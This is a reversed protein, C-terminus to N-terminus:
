KGFAARIAANAEERGTAAAPTGTASAVIRPPKTDAAFAGPDNERYSKVFDDFGLLSDGQLPLNKAALDAMFAKKASASTFHLGAAANQAAYGAQLEAVKADAAKQADASKQQWDPDYGKLKTNAEDLQTRMADREAKATEATQKERNVDAGNMAFVRQVQEDTLGLAKLDETKM